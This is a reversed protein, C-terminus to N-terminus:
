EMTFSWYAIGCDGSYAALLVEWDQVAASAWFYAEGGQEGLAHAPAGNVYLRVPEVCHGSFMGTVVEFEVTDPTSPDGDYLDKFLVGMLGPGGAMSKIYLQCPGADGSVAGDTQAEVSDLEMPGPPPSEDVGCGVLLLVAGVLAAMGSKPKSGLESSTM